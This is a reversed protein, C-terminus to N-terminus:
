EEILSDDQTKSRHRMGGFDIEIPLQDDLVCASKRGELCLDIRASAGAFIAQRDRVVSDHIMVRKRYPLIPFLVTRAQSFHDSIGRVKVKEVISADLAWDFEVRSRFGIDLIDGNCRISSSRIPKHSVGDICLSACLNADGNLVLCTFGNGAAISWGA